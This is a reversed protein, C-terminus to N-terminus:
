LSLVYLLVLICTISILFHLFRDIYSLINSKIVKSYTTFIEGYPTLGVLYILFSFKQKFCEHM